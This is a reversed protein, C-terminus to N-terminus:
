KMSKQVYCLLAGAGSDWGYTTGSPCESAGGQLFEVFTIAGNLGITSDYEIYPGLEDNIDKRPGSPLSSITKIMTNLTTSESYRNSPNSNYIDRCRGVGDGATNPFGTGLCYGGNPMSPYAGNTAKYAEFTKMWATLEAHRATNMARKQVGNYAVITIAALIAIVVIVILLEVITFGRSLTQKQM